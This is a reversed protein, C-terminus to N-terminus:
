TPTKSNRQHEELSGQQEKVQIEGITKIQNTITLLKTFYEVVSEAENMQLLEYQRRLTQLKVKKLKDAGGHAKELIDWAEKATNTSVIKEFNDIDVCQHIIFLAKDDRKEADRHATRQADSSKKELEQLGDRVIETVEQFRFILRM